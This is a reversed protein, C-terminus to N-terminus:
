VCWYLDSVHCNDTIIHEIYVQFPRRAAHISACQQQQSVFSNPITLNLETWNKLPNQLVRFQVGICILWCFMFRKNMLQTFVCTTYVALCWHTWTLRQWGGRWWWLFYHSCWHATSIHGNRYASKLLQQSKFVVGNLHNHYQNRYSQWQGSQPHLRDKSPSTTELWGHFLQISFKINSHMGNIFLNFQILFGFCLGWWGVDETLQLPSELYAKLEASPSLMACDSEQFEKVAALMWAHGYNHMWHCLKHQMVPNAPHWHTTSTM